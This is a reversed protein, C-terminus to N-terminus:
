KIDCVFSRNTHRILQLEDCIAGDVPVVVITEDRQTAAVFTFKHLINFVRLSFCLRFNCAWVPEPVMRSCIHDNQRFCFSFFAIVWNNRDTISWIEDHRGFCIPWVGAVEVPKSVLRAMAENGLFKRNHMLMAISVLHFLRRLLLLLLLVSWFNMWYYISYSFPTLWHSRVCHPQAGCVVCDRISKESNNYTHEAVHTSGWDGRFARVCPNSYIFYLLLLSHPLKRNNNSLISYVVRM